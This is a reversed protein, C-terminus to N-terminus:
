LVYITGGAWAGQVRDASLRTHGGHQRVPPPGDQVEQHPSPEVEQGRPDRVNHASTGALEGPSSQSTECRGLSSAFQPRGVAIQTGEGAQRALNQYLYTCLYPHTHKPFSSLRLFRLLFHFLLLTCCTPSYNSFLHTPLLYSREASLHLLEISRHLTESGSGCPDTNSNDDPDANRIRIRIWCSIFNAGFALFIWIM